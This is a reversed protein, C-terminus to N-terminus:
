FLHFIEFLLAASQAWLLVELDFQSELGLGVLSLGVGLPERSLKPDWCPPLAALLPAPSFGTLLVAVSWRLQPVFILPSIASRVPSSLAFKYGSLVVLYKFLLLSNSLLGDQMCICCFADM